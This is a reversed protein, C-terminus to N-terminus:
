LAFEIAEQRKEAAERESKGRSGARLLAVLMLVLLAALAALASALAQVLPVPTGFVIFQTSIPSM